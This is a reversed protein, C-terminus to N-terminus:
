VVWASSVLTMGPAWHLGRRSPSTPSGALGWVALLWPRWGRGALHHTVEPAPGALSRGAPCVEQSQETCKQGRREAPAGAVPGEMVLGKWGAGGAVSVRFWSRSLGPGGTGPTGGVYMEGKPPPGPRGGMIGGPGGAGLVLGKRRYALTLTPTCPGLGDGTKAVQSVLTTLAHSAPVGGGGAELVRRKRPGSM